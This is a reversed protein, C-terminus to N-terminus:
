RTHDDRNQGDRPLHPRRCHASVLYATRRHGQQVIRAKAANRSRAGSREAAVASRSSSARAYQSRMARGTGRSKDLLLDPDPELDSDLCLEARRVVIRMDDSDTSQALESAVLGRLRRLRTQAARKRRVEGYLPHAVRAEVGTDTDDLTILGRMEAAEVAMPDTIRMLVAVDIPEGVALVDLVDSIPDPLAGIRSEILEVLGPPVVPDGTWRWYGHQLALRKKAVEVDVINRLYLANGRTLQWLREAATPELSGSLTASVLSATEDHSLPQLDLRHFHATKWLQQTAAPVPEGDRLTLVVKAARREIIQHVVFTSLDDLLALDDVGIVVTKGPPALSLARIAGRVLELSDSGRGVWASLAGL